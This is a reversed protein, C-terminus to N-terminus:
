YSTIVLDAGPLEKFLEARAPGHILLCKREPTFRVAERQWNVILAAPCIVLSPGTLQRLFALTQVTKGLGMEDALIGGLRNSALFNFWAVGLKQYPRLLSELSGLSVRAVREMQLLTSGGDGAQLAIGQSSAVARLYPAYRQKIRYKG